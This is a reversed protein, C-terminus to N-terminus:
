GACSAPQGAQVRPVYACGPEEALYDGTTAYARARSGGCADRYECIGCRGGLRDPDRLARFVPSDRYVDALRHRRVNGAALPLFGSPYIEGHYSIFLHGKGANIPQPAQGITGMPGIARRLAEPLAADSASPRRAAAPERQMVYRRFHPAETIKVIFPARRTLAYLKAFVREFEEPALGEVQNGRGVPVLFFVEWFVIGLREILEIMADADELNRRSFVTNIQVALKAEHAWQVADMTKRFAGPVGRFADHAGPTSADLSLAMQDLGTDKLSAVVSRTLKATAAPITGVRRGRAKARRILEFLDPRKLPDGGSLVLIPTGLAAIEDILALGEEPTLEGPLPNPQAAARCHACALDCAQTTEWIVIFPTRALDLARAHAHPPTTM